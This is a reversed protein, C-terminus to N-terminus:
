RSRPPERAELKMRIDDNKYNTRIDFAVRKCRPCLARAPVKSSFLAVFTEGCPCTFHFRVVLVKHKTTNRRSWICSACVYKGEIYEVKKPNKRTRNCVTCTMESM